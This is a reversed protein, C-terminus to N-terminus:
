HAQGGSVDLANTLNSVAVPILADNKTGDGIQGADNRGWCVVARTKRVACTHFDGADIAVADSLNSM